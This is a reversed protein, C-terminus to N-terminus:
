LNIWSKAGNVETGFVLVLVLFFLTLGYIPYAFFYYFKHDLIFVAFILLISVLMWILQNGYNTKFSFANRIQENYGSAFINMWGFTVLIFYLLVVVWDINAM